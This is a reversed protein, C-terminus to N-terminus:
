YSYKLKITPQVKSFPNNLFQERAVTQLRSYKPGGLTLRAPKFAPTEPVTEPIYKYVPEKQASAKGDTARKVEYSAIDNENQSPDNEGEINKIMIDRTTLGNINGELIIEKLKQKIYDDGSIVIGIKSEEKKGGGLKAVIEKHLRKLKPTSFRQYDRTTEIIKQLEVPFTEYFYDIDGLLEERSKNEASLRFKPIMDIKSPLADETRQVTSIKQKNFENMGSSETQTGVEQTMPDTGVDRPPQGERRFANQQLDDLPPADEGAQQGQARPKDQQPITPQLPPVPQSDYDVMTFSGAVTDAQANLEEAKDKAEQQQERIEEKEEEEEQPPPQAVAGEGRDIAEQQAKNLKRGGRLGGKRKEEAIPTLVVKQGGRPTVSIATVKPRSTKPEAQEELKKAERKLKRLKAETNEAEIGEPILEQIQETTLSKSLSKALGKLLKLEAKAAEIEKTKQIKATETLRLTRDSELQQIKTEIQNIQNQVYSGGETKTETETETETQSKTALEAPASGARRLGGKRLGGMPKKEVSTEVREISGRPTVTTEVNKSLDKPVSSQRMLPPPTSLGGEKELEKQYDRRRETVRALGEKTLKGDEMFVGLDILPEFYEDKKRLDKSLGDYRDIGKTLVDEAVGKFDIYDLFDGEIFEEFTINGRIFFELMSVRERQEKNLSVFKDLTKKRDEVKLSDYFDNYDMVLNRLLFPEKIVDKMTKKNRLYTLFLKDGKEKIIKPDSLSM